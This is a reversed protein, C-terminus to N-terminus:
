LHVRIHSPSETPIYSNHTSSVKTNSCSPSTSPDKMTMPNPRDRNPSPDKRTTPNPDRNPSPRDQIPGPSPIDRNPDTMSKCDLIMWLAYVPRSVYRNYRHRCCNM